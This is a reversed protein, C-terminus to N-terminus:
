KKKDKNKLKELRANLKDLKYETYERRKEDEHARFANVFSFRSKKSAGSKDEGPMCIHMYCGYVSILNMIVLILTALIIIYGSLAMFRVSPSFGLLSSTQWIINLAYIIFTLIVGKHCRVALANLDVERAIDRAGILMFVTTLCILLYRIMGVISIFSAGLSLINFMRMAESIFEFAGFAAFISCFIFGLSFGRNLYALKFFALLMLLASIVDTLMYYSVNNLLLFYGIFLIGFGM